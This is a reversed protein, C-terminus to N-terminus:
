TCMNYRPNYYSSYIVLHKYTASSGSYISKNIAQLTTPMIGCNICSAYIAIDPLKFLNAYSNFAVVADTIYYGMFMHMYIDYGNTVCM